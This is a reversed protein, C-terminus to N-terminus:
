FPRGELWKSFFAFAREPQYQPVMHGSQKVTLFTLKHAHFPFGPAYTTVYGAPVSNLQWPRWAETKMYGQQKALAEVWDANSSYPMCADVPVYPPTRLCCTLDLDLGLRTWM